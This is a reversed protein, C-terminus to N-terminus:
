HAKGQQNGRTGLLQAAKTWKAGLQLGAWPFRPAHELCMDQTRPRHPDLAQLPTTLFLPGQGRQNMSNKVHAQCTM